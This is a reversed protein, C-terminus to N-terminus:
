DYLAQYALAWIDTYIPEPVPSTMMRQTLLICTLGERPDNRASTGLGGDWGYSGPSLYGHRQTIVSLGFGWGSSDWFGPYLASAAKQAPTLHDTTMLEVTARSLIRVGNHQGMGMMMRSFALYDDATSVLGGGGSAFAPPEAWRGNRARDYLRLGGKLDPGYSTALRDIKAEPVHFATDAMGLPVFIRQSLFDVFDMGAARAVLVGLIDSATHYLWAAGPQHILPLTALKAMWADPSVPPPNPGPAMGADAIAQQIPYTGPRAMIAGFGARFTLLDRLSIPRDAPVTDDIASGITRLVKRNALEPLLRDVPADLNLKGEEVLIMAAAAAIPKTMSAIRFITDRAMPAGSTLDQVGPMEVHVSDGRAILAVLGAVEGRDVYARMADTLRRLRAASFGSM